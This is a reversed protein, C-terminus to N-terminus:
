TLTGAEFDSVHVGRVVSTHAGDLGRFARVDAENTRERGVCPDVVVAENLRRVALDDLTAHGVLDDVVVGSFFLVVDNGLGVRRDIGLPVEGLVPDEHTTSWLAGTHENTLVAVHGTRRRLDVVHWRRLNVKHVHTRLLDDRDGSREDGENLVVVGVTREHAGVHLLLSNREDHGFGGVHAGADLLVCRAVGTIHDESLTVALHDVDVGGM